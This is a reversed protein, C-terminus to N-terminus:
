FMAAAVQSCDSITPPEDGRNLGHLDVAPGQLEAIDGGAEALGSAGQDLPNVSIDDAPSGRVPTAPTSSPRADTSPLTACISRILRWVLREGQVGLDLGGPGAGAARGRPPRRRPARARWSGDVRQRVHDLLLDAGHRGAQAAAM